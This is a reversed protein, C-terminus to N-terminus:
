EVRVVRNGPRLVPFVIGGQENGPCALVRWGTGAQAPLDCIVNKEQLQGKRCRWQARWPVCLATTTPALLFSLIVWRVM